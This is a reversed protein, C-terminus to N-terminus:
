RCHMVGQAAGIDLRFNFEANGEANGDVRVAGGMVVLHISALAAPPARRVLAAINTLPGLALLTVPTTGAARSEEVARLIACAADDASGGGEEVGDKGGTDVDAATTAATAAATSGHGRGDFHSLLQRCDERYTVGWDSADLHRKGAEAALKGGGVVVVVEVASDADAGAGAGAAVFRSVAGLLDAGGKQDNIGGVSTILRLDPISGDTDGALLATAFADDWGGDSDIILAGPM